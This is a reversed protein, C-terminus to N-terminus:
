AALKSEFEVADHVAALPVEYLGAVHSSSEEVAFAQALVDTPVGQRVIPQGFNRRPDVVVERDEGLPMWRVLDGGQYKLGEFLSEVFFDFIHQGSVLDFARRVDPATEVLDAFISRGDTKFALSSFPYAQTFLEQACRIAKRLTPLSVGKARFAHVFRVEILDRFGLSRFGDVLSHQPEWLPSQVRGKSRYGWLWRHICRGPVGTLRSAEPVSYIGIGLLDNAM